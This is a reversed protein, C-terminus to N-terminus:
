FVLNSMTVIGAVQRYFPKENKDCLDIFREFNGRKAFLLTVDKLKFKLENPM